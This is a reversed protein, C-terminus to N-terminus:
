FSRFGDLLARKRPNDSSPAFWTAFVSVFLATLRM